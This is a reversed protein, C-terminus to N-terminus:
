DLQDENRTELKTVWLTVLIGAVWGFLMGVALCAWHETLM